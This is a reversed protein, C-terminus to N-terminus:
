FANHVQMAQELQVSGQPPVAALWPVLHLQENVWYPLVLWIRCFREKEQFSFKAAM